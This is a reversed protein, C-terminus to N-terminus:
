REGTAADVSRNARLTWAGELWYILLALWIIGFGLLRPRPFPEHYLWVGLVLGCTPSIYQLLGLTSLNVQRAASAFLLLPLATVVGTFALLLSTSWSTHGFAGTGRSEIVMLYGLAPATLMATELVLGPLATLAATKKILGYFGFSCALVLAIWPFAGYQWTLYLVGVAALGVSLWQVRRLSERLGVVGLLVSVLPNIYYGLSTEVIRGANVSWIYTFWNVTLLCAALLYTLVTRCRAGPAVFAVGEKRLVVLLALFAFSWVIRHALIQPASVPQLAKWYLPLLGWLVYAGVACWVGKRAPKM